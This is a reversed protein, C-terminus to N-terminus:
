SLIAAGRRAGWLSIGGNKPVDLTIHREDEPSKAFGNGLTPRPRGPEGFDTPLLAAPRGPVAKKSNRFRGLLPNLLILKESSSRKQCVRSRIRSSIQM